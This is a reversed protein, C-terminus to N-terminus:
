AKKARKATLSLMPAPLAPLRDLIERQPPAFKAPLRWLGLSADAFTVLRIGALRDLADQCTLGIDRVRSELARALKLGLMTVFAHARTRNAKRLFIPRIELLGSKMTRFDREVQALSMYRDHATQKNMSEVPADTDLVYCGDLLEVDARKVPDEELVVERGHLRATVYRDLRYMALLSQADKLSVAAQARPRTRVQENRREIRSRVKSLQDARRQRDRRRTDPNLRLLLRRGGPLTVEAVAEDFLEM